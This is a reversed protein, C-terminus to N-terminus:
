IIVINEYKYILVIISCKRRKNHFRTSISTKTEEM